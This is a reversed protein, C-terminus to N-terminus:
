CVDRSLSVVSVSSGSSWCFFFTATWARRASLDVPRQTLELERLVQRRLFVAGGTLNKQVVHGGKKLSQFDLLVKGSTWRTGAVSCSQSDPLSVVGHAGTKDVSGSHTADGKRGSPLDSDRVLMIRRRSSNSNNPWHRVDPETFVSHQGRGLEAGTQSNRMHAWQHLMRIPNETMKNLWPFVGWSSREGCNSSWDSGTTRSSHGHVGRKRHWRSRRVNSCRHRNHQHRRTLQGEFLM